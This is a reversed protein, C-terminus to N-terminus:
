APVYANMHSSENVNGGGFSRFVTDIVVLIPARGYFAEAEEIAEKIDTPHPVWTYGRGDEHRILTPRGTALVFDAPVHGAAMLRKWFGGHGECAVYLVVGHLHIRHGMWVAVKPDSVALAANTALFSKGSKPLGSILTISGLHFVGGVVTSQDPPAIAAGAGFALKLKTRDEKLRATIGSAKDAEERDRKLEPSDEHAGAGNPKPRASGPPRYAGEMARFHADLEAPSRKSLDVAM